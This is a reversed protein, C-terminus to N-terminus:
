QNDWDDFFTGPVMWVSCTEWVQNNLDNFYLVYGSYGAVQNANLYVHHKAM